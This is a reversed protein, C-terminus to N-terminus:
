ASVPRVTATFTISRPAMALERCRTTDPHRREVDVSHSDGGDGNDIRDAIDDFRIAPHKGAGRRRRVRSRKRTRGRELLLGDGVRGQDGDDGVGPAVLGRAVQDRLAAVVADRSRQPRRVRPEVAVERNGDRRSSDLRM